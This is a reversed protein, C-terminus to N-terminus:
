ATEASAPRRYFGAFPAGFAYLWTFASAILSLQTVPDFHFETMSSRSSSSIAQRDAYNFLCILWLMAVVQWAYRRERNM